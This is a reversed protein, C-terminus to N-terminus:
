DFGLYAPMGGRIEQPKSASDPRPQVTRAEGVGKSERTRGPQSLRFFRHRQQIRSVKGAQSFYKNTWSLPIKSLYPYPITFSLTPMPM